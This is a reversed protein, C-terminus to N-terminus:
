LIHLNYCLATLCCAVTVILQIHLSNIKVSINKAIIPFRPFTRELLNWLCCNGVLLFECRMQNGLEQLCGERAQLWPLRDWQESNSSPGTKVQEGVCNTGLERKNYILLLATLFKLGPMSDSNEFLPFSIVTRCMGTCKLLPFFSWSHNSDKFKLIFGQANM